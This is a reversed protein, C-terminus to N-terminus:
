GRRGNGLVRQIIRELGSTGLAGLAAAAGIQALFPAEPFALLVLGAAMALGATSLCRGIVIRATLVEKSKLMEGVTFIIGVFAFLATQWIADWRESAAQAIKEIPM